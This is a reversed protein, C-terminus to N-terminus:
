QLASEMREILFQESLNMIHSVNIIKKILSKKVRRGTCLVLYDNTVAKLKGIEIRNVMQPITTQICQQMLVIYKDGVTYEM